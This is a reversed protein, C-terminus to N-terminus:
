KDFGIIATGESENQFRDLSTVVYTLGKNKLAKLDTYDISSGSVIALLNEAHEINIREGKEFKYIAYLKPREGSKPAEWFLKVGFDDKQGYIKSPPFPAVGDKWPMTPLLAKHRFLDFKLSDTFGLPNKILSKASFFISGSVPSTNRNFRIQRPMQNALKWAQDTNIGGIRYAAQGVYLHRGYNHNTWWKLTSEYPVKQFYTTFYIQPAIYDLWGNKIWKKSDAFQGDYSSGGNTASGTPDDKQNRWVGFPSIGFKVYPKTAKIGDSIQKILVDINDRRWDKINTFGRPYKSFTEEDKIKYDPSPYPYFYDDFHVGDVDYDRVMQVVIRTLYDRVEPLGFNYLTYGDYQFFWDPHLTVVADKALTKAAKHKGRNLNLWAHFEIGRDHTEKIMFEMPDYFPEPAVGQTGSLWESWPELRSAMFSDSADRVQVFIANMNMKDLASIMTKFEKKQADSSLGKASPWDINDVTAIWVGRLERKPAEYRYVKQEVQPQNKPSCANFFVCILLPYVIRFSLM